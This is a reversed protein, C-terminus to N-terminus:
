PRNVEALKYSPSREAGGGEDDGGQGDGEGGVVVSGDEDRVRHDGRDEGGRGKSGFM